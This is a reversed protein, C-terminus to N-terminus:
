KNLTLYPEVSRDPAHKECEKLFAIGDRLQEFQDNGDKFYEESSIWGRFGSIKLAFFVELWDLIGCPLNVVKFEWRARCVPQEHFKGTFNFMVNKAHVYAMYPGLVEVESRPRMSGELITNAPDYIVGVHRPDVGEFLKVAALASATLAGSHMEVVFRIGSQKSLEVVEPMADRALKFIEQWSEKLHLSESYDWAIWPHAVRLSIGGMNALLDAYRRMDDRKWLKPGNIFGAIELGADATMKVMEKVSQAAEEYAPLGWEIGEIKLKRAMEIIENNKYKSLSNTNVSYKFRSM